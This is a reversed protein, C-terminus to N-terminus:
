ANNHKRRLLWTRSKSEVKRRGKTKTVTGLSTLNAVKIKANNLNEKIPKWKGNQPQTTPKLWWRWTSVM